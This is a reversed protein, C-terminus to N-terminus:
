PARPSARHRSAENSTVFAQNCCRPTDMGGKLGAITITRTSGTALSGLNISLTRAAYGTTFPGGVVDVDLAPDFTSDDICTAFSDSVIVTTAPAGDNHIELTYTLAGGLDVPDPAM